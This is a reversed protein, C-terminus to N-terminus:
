IQNCLLILSLAFGVSGCCDHVLRFCGIQLPLARKDMEWWSSIIWGATPLMICVLYYYNRPKHKIPRQHHKGMWARQNAPLSLLVLSNRGKLEKWVSTNTALKELEWYVPVLLRCRINAAFVLALTSFYAQKSSSSHFAFLSRYASFASCIPLHSCVTKRKTITVTTTTTTPAALAGLVGNM